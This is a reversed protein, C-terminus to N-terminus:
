NLTTSVLVSSIRTYLGYNTGSTYLVCEGEALDAVVPLVTVIRRRDTGKAIDYYVLKFNDEIARAMEQLYKQVAEGLEEPSLPTQFDRILMLDSPTKIQM